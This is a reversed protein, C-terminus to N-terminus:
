ATVRVHAMLQHGIVETYVPPIAQALEDRTMWDIDMAERWLEVGSGASGYGNVQVVGSRYFNTEHGSVSVVTALGKRRRQNARTHSIQTEFRPTQWGHACPPVFLLWNTEFLRHRRVDLGFSSGCMMVPDILPAGVVNEIVYPLGTESLLHRTDAVLDPHEKTTLHRTVSYAQCPPSAHIADFASLVWPELTLVDLQWFRFPYNKQPAIDVGVVDFGAREYGVSAGGAGCFLDLLRPRVPVAGMQALPAVM